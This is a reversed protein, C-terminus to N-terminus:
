APVLPLVGPGPQRFHVTYRWGPGPPRGNPSRKFAPNARVAVLTSQTGSWLHENVLSRRRRSGIGSPSSASQVMFTLWVGGHGCGREAAPPGLVEISQSGPAASGRSARDVSQSETARHGRATQCLAQDTRSPSSGSSRSTNGLIGARVTSGSKSQSTDCPPSLPAAVEPNPRGATQFFPASVALSHM